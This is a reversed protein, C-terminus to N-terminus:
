HNQSVRQERSLVWFTGSTYDVGYSLMIGIIRRLPRKQNYKEVMKSHAVSEWGHTITNDVDDRDPLLARGPSDKVGECVYIM